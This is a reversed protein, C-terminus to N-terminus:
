APFFSKRRRKEDVVTVQGDTRVKVALGDPLTSCEDLVEEYQRKRPLALHVDNASGFDVFIPLSARPNMTQIYCSRINTEGGPCYDLVKQITVGLNEVLYSAKQGLNGFRVTVSDKLNHLNLSVLSYARQIEEGLKHSHAHIPLPMKGPKRFNAGLYNFVKTQLASDVLFIDYMNALKGKEASNSYERTLENYTFIKAVDSKNLGHKERLIESWERAQKDVDHDKKAEDSRDLDPLILCITTNSPNVFRRHVPARELAAKKYKIQVYVGSDIALKGQNVVKKKTDM